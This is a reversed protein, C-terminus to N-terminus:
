YKKRPDLFGFLDFPLEGLAYDVGVKFVFGGIFLEPYLEFVADPDTLSVIEEGDETISLKSPKTALNMEIGAHIITNANIMYEFGSNLSLGLSSVNFQSDTSGMSLSQYNLKFGVPVNTRGMWFKTSAGMGFNLLLTAIGEDIAEQTLKANPIGFSFGFDLFTQSRNIIPALNYAFDVDIMTASSADKELIGLTYEAPIRLGSKTGLRVRLDMGLRPHEMVLSGIDGDEGYLQKALSLATRDENNKGTKAIRLFGM